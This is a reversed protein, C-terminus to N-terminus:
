LRLSQPCSGRSMLAGRRGSRQRDVAPGSGYPITRSAHFEVGLKHDGAGVVAESRVVTHDDFANYDFVLHGGDLFISIGSNETGTAFLVGDRGAGAEFLNHGHDVPCAGRRGSDDVAPALRRGRHFEVGLKHDGAGVVTEPVTHDDFANYDFVLHGGDLFISIGSNETGTAGSAAPGCTVSATFNWSRGGIPAGSQSGMPSVPPYYRYTKNAPHPSRDRFRSGFLKFMREDLLLVGHTEAEQWWLAIMEELKEPMSDALDNCESPDVDTHYLEWTDDEFPVGQEHRTVAKWGDHWLGRHGAMEFYQTEKRTPAKPDSFTYALSTGSIPIQELGRRVAPPQINILTM